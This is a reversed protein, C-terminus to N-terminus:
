RKQDEVYLAYDHAAIQEDQYQADTMAELREAEAIYKDRASWKDRWVYAFGRLQEIRELRTM